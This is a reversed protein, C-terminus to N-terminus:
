AAAKQAKRCDCETPLKLCGECIVHQAPPPAVGRLGNQVIQTFYEPAPRFRWVSACRLCILVATGDQQAQGGTTWEAGMTGKPAGHGANEGASAPYRLHSCGERRAKLAQEEAQGLQLQMEAKRRERELEEDIKKQELYNPRTAEQVATKIAVEMLRQLQEATMEITSPM